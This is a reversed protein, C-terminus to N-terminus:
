CSFQVKSPPWTGELFHSCLSYVEQIKLLVLDLSSGGGFINQKRVPLYPQCTSTSTQLFHIDNEAKQEDLSCNQHGESSFVELGLDGWAEKQCIQPHHVAM